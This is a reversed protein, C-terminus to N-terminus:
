NLIAQLPCFFSLLPFLFFPVCCCCCHSLVVFPETPQVGNVENKAANSRSRVRGCWWQWWWWKSEKMENPTWLSWEKCPSLAVDPMNPATPTHLHPSHAVLQHATSKGTSKGASKGTSTGTGHSRGKGESKGSWRQQKQTGVQAVRPTDYMFKLPNDRDQDVAEQQEEEEAEEMSALYAEYKVPGLEKKLQSQDTMFHSFHRSPTYKIKTGITDTKPGRGVGRIPSTTPTASSTTTTTTLIEV